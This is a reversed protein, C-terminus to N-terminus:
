SSFALGAMGSMVKLINVNQAFIRLNTLNTAAATTTNEDLIDTVATATPSAAKWNLSLSSNDIRSFNCTGTPQNELPSPKLAFSYLYIGAQPKIGMCQFSQVANYYSGHRGAARDHGNLQLKGFRLPAFAEATTGLPGGTFQGHTPGCAAWVLYKCPHNYNIRINNQVQKGSAVQVTEDGTFQLTTILYEAQSQATRRREEADLFVYDVWLSAQPIYTPDVGIVDSADGFLVDVKVEHYQLAVLPLALGPMTNWWFILPLYLRKVTGAAEGDVFDTLNQYAVKQDGGRWLSDHLRFWTSYHKDITIGGISCTIEKILAEAPYYTAGQGKMLQIEIFAGNILDGNRSITASVRKNWSVTGSFVQEISELAFAAYRRYMVKWFTITPNATLYVDQQGFAVIQLLGGAM